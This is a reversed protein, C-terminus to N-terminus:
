SDEMYTSLPSADTVNPVGQQCTELAPSRVSMALLTGPAHYKLVCSYCDLLGLCVECIIDIPMELLHRLWGMDYQVIVPKQLTNPKNALKIRKGRRIM